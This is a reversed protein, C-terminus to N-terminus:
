QNQENWFRYSKCFFPYLGSNCTQKIRRQLQQKFCKTSWNYTVVQVRSTWLNEQYTDKMEAWNECFNSYALLTKDVKEIHFEICIM